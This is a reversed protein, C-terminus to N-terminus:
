NLFKLLIEKDFKWHTKWYGSSALFDVFKYKKTIANKISSITILKGLNNIEQNNSAGAVVHYWNGYTIGVDVAEVKGNIELSIMQLIDKEYALKVMKLIGNRLAKDNYISNDGFHKISLEVLRNFDRLRNHFVKYKPIKKLEGKFNKQKKKDFSSFYKEFDNDYKSLDLYYTYEDELFNYYKGETQDIAEIFTNEPCQELFQPLKTKEKLFFSNREPFWGGFYVYQNTSKVYWLPIIGLTKGNERGAIFYPQNDDRDYFCQRFGWVDFLKKNPSFENWLKCCQNLSKYIKLEMHYLLNYNYNYFAYRFM